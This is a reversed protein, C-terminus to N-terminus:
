KTEDTYSTVQMGTRDFQLKFVVGTPGTLPQVGIIDEAYLSPFVAPEFTKYVYWLGDRGVFMKSYSVQGINWCRFKWVPGFSYDNLIWCLFRQTLEPIHRVNGGLATWLKNALWNRM